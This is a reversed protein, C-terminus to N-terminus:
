ESYVERFGLKYRYAFLLNAGELMNEALSLQRELEGIREVAVRLEEQLVHELLVM